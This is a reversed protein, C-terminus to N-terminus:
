GDQEAQNSPWEHWKPTGGLGCFGTAGLDELREWNQVWTEPSAPDMKSTWIVEGKQTWGQGKPTIFNRIKPPEAPVRSTANPYAAEFAGRGDPNLFTYCHLTPGKEWRWVPCLSALCDKKPGQAALSLPCIRTKACKETLLM